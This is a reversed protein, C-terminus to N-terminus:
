GALLFVEFSYKMNANKEIINQRILILRELCDARLRVREVSVDEDFASLNVLDNRLQIEWLNLINLADEREIGVINNEIWDVRKGVSMELLVTINLDIPLDGDLGKKKVSKDGNTNGLDDHLVHDQFDKLDDSKLNVHSARSVVTELINDKHNATLIFVLHSPPEELIKLMANQGEITMLNMDKVWVISYPNNRPSLYAIKIMERVQSISIHSKGDDMTLIYLDTTPRTIDILSGILEQAKEERKIPTGGTILITQM